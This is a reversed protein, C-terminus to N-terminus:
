QALGKAISEPCFGKGLGKAVDKASKDDLVSKAKAYLQARNLLATKIYARKYTYAIHLYQASQDLSPYSVESSEVSDLLMIPVFEAIGGDDERYKEGVAAESSERVSSDLKSSNRLAYIWLEQRGKHNHLLFVRDGITFLVSSSGNNTLNSPKTTCHMSEVGNCFSVIMPSPVYNRYVGLSQTPSLAIFSPQLKSHEKRALIRNPPPLPLSISELAPTSNFHLLLPYKRALEHYVPLVFGGNELKMAPVRVLSSLNAFPSLALEQKFHLNELNEDFMLWYIRSTAWGGLSVGVVFVHVRGLTDIFSVPNGLKSIFKGSLRSLHNPTLIERPTSWHGLIQKEHTKASPTFFSQYIGVDRAGERSGAFYLAMFARTDAGNPNHHRVKDLAVIASAHASKELNPITFYAPKLRSSEPTTSELACPNLVGSSDLAFHQTSVSKHTLFVFGIAGLVLAGFLVGSFRWLCTQAGIVPMSNSM